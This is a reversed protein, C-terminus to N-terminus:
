KKKETEKEPEKKEAKLGAGLRKTLEEPKDVLAFRGPPTLQEVAAQVQRRLPEVEKAPVKYGVVNVAIGTGALEKRLAAAVDTTGSKAQLSKDAAFCNDMGDTLVLLARPGRFNAPFGQEKAQVVARVLPATNWPRLAELEDLLPDLRRPLWYSPELVRKVTTNVLPQTATPQGQADLPGTAASFTFVSVMTGDPLDKLFARLAATIEHYKCKTKADYAMGEAPGMSGSCDLVIALAANQASASTTGTALIVVALAATISQWKSMTM